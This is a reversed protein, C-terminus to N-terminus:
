EPASTALIKMGNESMRLVAQHERGVSPEDSCGDGTTKDVREVSRTEPPSHNLLNDERFQQLLENEDLGDDMQVLDEFSRSPPPPTADQAQSRTQAKTTSQSQSQSQSQTSKAPVSMNASRYRKGTAIISGFLTDWLESLEPDPPNM